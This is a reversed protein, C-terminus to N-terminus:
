RNLRWREPRGARLRAVGGVEAVLEQRLRDGVVADLGVQEVAVPFVDAGDAGKVLGVDVQGRSSGATRNRRPPLGIKVRGRKRGHERIPPAVTFFLRIQSPQTMPRPDTISFETM